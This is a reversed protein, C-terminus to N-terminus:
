LHEWVYDLALLLLGHKGWSRAKSGQLAPPRSIELCIWTNLVVLVQFAVANEFFGEYSFSMKKAHTAKYSRLKCIIYKQKEIVPNRNTAAAIKITGKVLLSSDSLYDNGYLCKLINEKRCVLHVIWISLYQGCSLAFISATQYIELSM